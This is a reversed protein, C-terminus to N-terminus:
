KPQVHPLYDELGLETADGFIYGIVFHKVNFNDPDTVLAMLLDPTDQSGKSYFFGYHNPSSAVDKLWKLNNLEENNTVEFEKPEFGSFYNPFRQKIKM